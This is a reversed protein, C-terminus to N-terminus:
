ENGDGVRGGRPNERVPASKASRKVDKKQINSKASILEVVFKDIPVDLNHRLTTELAARLTVVLKAPTSCATRQQQTRMRFPLPFL